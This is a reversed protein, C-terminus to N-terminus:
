YGFRWWNSPIGIYSSATDYGDFATGSDNFRSISMTFGAITINNQYADELSEALKLLKDALNDKNVSKDGQTYAFFRAYNGALARAAYSAALLTGGASAIDICAQIEDDSLANYQYTAIIQNGAAPASNTMQFIGLQFNASASVSVGTNFVTLSGTRVPFMDLQFTFTNGDASAVRENISAKNNDGILSRVPEVGTLPM